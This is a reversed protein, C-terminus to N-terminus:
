SYRDVSALFYQEKRKENPILGGFDIQIEENPETCNIPSSWNFHPIVQKLDIVIDTCVKCEGAKAPINCHNYPWWTNEALSLM